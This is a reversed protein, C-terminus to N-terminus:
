EGASAPASERTVTEAEPARPTCPHDGEPAGEEDEGPNENSLSEDLVALCSLISKAVTPAFKIHYAHTSGKFTM